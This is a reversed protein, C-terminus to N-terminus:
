NHIPTKRRAPTYDMIDAPEPEFRKGAKMLEDSNYMEDLNRGKIGKNDMMIRRAQIDIPFDAIFCFFILTVLLTFKCSLASKM